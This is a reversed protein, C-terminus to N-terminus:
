PLIDSIFIVLFSPILIHATVLTALAEPNTVAVNLWSTYVILITFLSFTSFYCYQCIRTNFLFCFSFLSCLLLCCFM